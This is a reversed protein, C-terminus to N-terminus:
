RRVAEPARHLSALVARVTRENCTIGYEVDGIARPLVFRLTGRRRKKDGHMAAFIADPDVSTRLPLRLLALLALVRLHDRESFRGTRLALLGAARLGLAVAAGHSVRYESAREIGHAFTHGLNLLERMGAENRDDAVIASKVKVAASIVAMWPWKGFPHPSLTELADFLDNGEIIAAKVIEALGERLRRFPLTQLASVDCFVAVPDKFVGALNKGGRLNVGTKGGIAADVMAVLSTAVHAYATGRMYSAAAFGFVDSAVGGGVGLILTSRDAGTALLRELVREVTTLRKRAEGLSVHLVAGQKVGAAAAIASAIRRVQPNDDSLVVVPAGRERVFSAIEGRLEHGIFVPYGLDDNVIPGSLDRDEEQAVV